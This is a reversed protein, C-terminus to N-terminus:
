CTESVHPRMKQGAELIKGDTANVVVTIDSDLGHVAFNHFFPVRSPLNKHVKDLNRTSTSHNVPFQGWLIVHKEFNTFSVGQKHVVPELLSWSDFLHWTERALNSFFRQWPCMSFSFFEYVLRRSDAGPQWWWSIYVSPLVIYLIFCSITVLITYVIYLLM